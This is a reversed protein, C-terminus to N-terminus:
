VAASPPLFKSAWGGKSRLVDRWYEECNPVVAAIVSPREMLSDRWDRVAPYKEILGLPHLHDFFTFQMLAPAYSADTLSFNQGNFYPRREGRKMLAGELKSFYGDAVVCRRRLDEEDEANNLHTIASFTPVYDNWARNYARDLPDVPHLRPETVEDLYEAIANSEFLATENNVILVPVKSHPSISVFWDPRDDRNIYEIDYNINKEQLVIAARHVWPCTKFSCLKFKM